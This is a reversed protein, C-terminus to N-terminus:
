AGCMEAPRSGVCFPRRKKTSAKMSIPSRESSSRRTISAWTFADPVAGDSSCMSVSALWVRDPRDRPAPSTTAALDSTDSLCM